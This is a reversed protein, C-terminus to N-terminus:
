KAIAYMSSLIVVYTEHLQVQGMMMFIHYWYTAAMQSVLKIKNETPSLFITNVNGIWIEFIKIINYYSSISLHGVGIHVSLCM